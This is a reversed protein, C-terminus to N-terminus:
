RALGILQGLYGSISASSILSSHLKQKQKKKKEGLSLTLSSLLCLLKQSKSIFALEMSTITEM